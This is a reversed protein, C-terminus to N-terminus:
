YGRLKLEQEVKEKLLVVDENNHILELFDFEHDGIKEAVYYESQFGVEDVFDRIFEYSMDKFTEKFLKLMTSYDVMIGETEFNLKIEM